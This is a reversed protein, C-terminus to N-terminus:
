EVSCTLFPQSFNKSPLKYAKIQFEEDYDEMENMIDLFSSMFAQSGTIYKTGNKDKIVLKDYDKTDSKENHIQLVVYFDVDILVPENCVTDLQVCDGTDKLQVQEKKSIEKSANIITASYGEM